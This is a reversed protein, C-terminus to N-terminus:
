RGELLARYEPSSFLAVQAHLEARIGNHVTGQWAQDILQKSAEVSSRSKSAIEVCLAMAADDLEEPTVLEDILGWAYATTADIRRGTMLMLKARSPSALMTTLPAGGSDTTLGYHVEPFSLRVDDAGVRIDAALALELGGGFVNGRLAAVIPKPSQLQFVRHDQHMRIFELDSMAEDGSAGEDNIDSVDRGSCFSRGEGRLLVVNVSRDHVGDEIATVLAELLENNMANHREPRNLSIIRVRDRTDTLVTTM